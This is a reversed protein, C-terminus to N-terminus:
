AASTRAMSCIDGALFPHEGHLADLAADIRDAQEPPGPMLNGHEDAGLGGAYIGFRLTM